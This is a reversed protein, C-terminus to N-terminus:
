QDTEKAEFEGCWESVFIIPNACDGCYPSRGDMQYTIRVMSGHENSMMIEKDCKLCFVHDNATSDPDTGDTAHDGVPKPEDVM